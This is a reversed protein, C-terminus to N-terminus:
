SPEHGKIGDAINVAAIIVGAASISALFINESVELNFAVCLVYLIVMGSVHFMGHKM